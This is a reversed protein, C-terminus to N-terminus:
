CKPQSLGTELMLRDHLDIRYRAFGQAEVLVSLEVAHRTVRNVFCVYAREVVTLEFTRKVEYGTTRGTLGKGLAPFM